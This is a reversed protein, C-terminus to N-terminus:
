MSESHTALHDHTNSTTCIQDGTDFTVFVVVDPRRVGVGVQDSPHTELLHELIQAAPRKIISTSQCNNIEGSLVSWM